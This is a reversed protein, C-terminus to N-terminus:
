GFHFVVQCSTIICSFASYDVLYYYIVIYCMDRIHIRSHSKASFARGWCGFLSFKSVPDIWKMCNGAVKTGAPLFGGGQRGPSVHKRILLVVQFSLGSAPYLLGRTPSEWHFTRQSALHTNQQFTFFKAWFHQNAGSWCPSDISVWSSTTM